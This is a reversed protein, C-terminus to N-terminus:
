FHNQHRPTLEYLYINACQQCELLFNPTTVQMIEFFDQLSAWFAGIDRRRQEFCIILKTTSETSSHCLAKLTEKLDEFYVDNYIIDAGVIYDFERASQSDSASKLLENLGTGSIGWVLEECTIRHKSTDCNATIAKQAYPLVVKLDTAIVNAGFRAAVIGIWNIVPLLSFSLSVQV